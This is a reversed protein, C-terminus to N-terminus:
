QNIKAGESGEMTPGRHGVMVNGSSLPSARVGVTTIEERSEPVCGESTASAANNSITVFLALLGSPFSM